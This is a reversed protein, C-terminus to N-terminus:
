SAAVFPEECGLFFALPGCLLCKEGRPEPKYLRVSYDVAMHDAKADRNQTNQILFVMLLTVITTATNV